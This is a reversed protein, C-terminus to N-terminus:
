NKQLYKYAVAGVVGAVIVAIATKVVCPPVGLAEAICCSDSASSKEGTAPCCKTKKCCGEGM